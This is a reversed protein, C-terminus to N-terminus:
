YNVFSINKKFFFRYVIKKLFFYLFFKNIKIIYFINLLLDKYAQHKICILIIKIVIETDIANIEKKTLFNQKFFKVRLEKIKKIALYVCEKSKPVNLSYLVSFVSNNINLKYFKKIYNKYIKIEELMDSKNKHNSINNAHKRIVCLVDILNTYKIKDMIKSYLHYDEYKVLPYFGYKYFIKKRIMISPHLFPCRFLMHWKILSRTPPLILNTIKKNDLILANSGVLDIDKRNFLFNYQYKLRNKFYYDDSDARAIIDSKSKKIGLNLSAPLGLKCKNRILVIRKDKFKKIEEITNDTSPDVIIILEFNRYSQNLISLITKKIYKESNYAPLIISINIKM